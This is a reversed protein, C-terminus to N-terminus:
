PVFALVAEVAAADMKYITTDDNVRVYYGDGHADGISLVFTSEVSLNNVYEVTMVVSSDDLGCIAAAGKSPRFDVCSRLTPQALLDVLPQTDAIDSTLAGLSSPRMEVQTEGRQITVSRLKEISISNLQPLAMMDYISRSIQASLDAPSLYIAGTEDDARRMYYRGVDDKDGLYWTIHVGNEDSATVYKDEDDLGLDEPTKDTTIPQATRMEEVSQLLHQVYTNDLPFERDDKWAWSGDESRIFRLTTDGDSCEIVASLVTPQADEGGDPTTQQQDTPTNEDEPTDKGCGWLLGLCALLMLASLLYKYVHKM